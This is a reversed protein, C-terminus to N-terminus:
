DEDSRIEFDTTNREYKAIKDPFKTSSCTLPTSWYQRCYEMTMLITNAYYTYTATEHINNYRTIVKLYKRYIQVFQPNLKIIINIACSNVNDM